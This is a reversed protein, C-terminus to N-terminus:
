RDRRYWIRNVFPKGAPTFGRQIIEMENGDDSLKRSAHGVVVDGQEITTNLTKEDILELSAPIDSDWTLRFERHEAEGDVDVWDLTFAMGGPTAAIRYTGSSPPKQHEFHCRDPIVQWIGEFARADTSGMPVSAIAVRM